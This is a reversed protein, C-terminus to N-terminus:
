SKGWLKTAGQRAKEMRELAMAMRIQVTIPLDKSAAVLRRLDIISHKVGKRMHALYVQYNGFEKQNRASLKHVPKRKKPARKKTTTM